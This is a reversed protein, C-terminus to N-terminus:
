CGAPAATSRPHAQQNIEGIFSDLFQGAAEPSFRSRFVSLSITMRNNYTLAILQPWPAAYGIFCMSGIRAAGLYQFGDADQHSPNPNCIGINSMTLTPCYTDPHRSYLFNKLTLPLPRLVWAFEVMKQAVNNETMLSRKEKVQRVTEEKNSILQHHLFIRFGCM